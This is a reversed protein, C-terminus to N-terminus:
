DDLWDGKPKSQEIRTELHLRVRELTEVLTPGDAVQMVIQDIASIARYFADEEPRVDSM